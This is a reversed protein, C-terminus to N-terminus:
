NISSDLLIKHYFDAAEWGERSFEKLKSSVIKSFNENSMLNIDTNKYEYIKNFLEKFKNMKKDSFKMVQIENILSGIKSVLQKSRSSQTISRTSYVKIKQKCIPCALPMKKNKLDILYNSWCKNHAVCSCTTCISNNCSELCIFCSM